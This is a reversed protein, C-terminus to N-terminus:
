WEGRGANRYVERISAGVSQWARLEETLASATRKAHNYAVEAVDRTRRENETALEAAYRKAHSPGEYAMYARAYALDYLHAATAFEAHRETVIPVGRTIHNAIERIQQEIDEPNLPRDATQQQPQATM